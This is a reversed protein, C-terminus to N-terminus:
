SAQQEKSLHTTVLHIFRTMVFLPIVKNQADLVLVEAAPFTKPVVRSVWPFPFKAKIDAISLESEVSEGSASVGCFKADHTTLLTM